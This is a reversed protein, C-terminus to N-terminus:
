FKTSIFQPAGRMIVRAPAGDHGAVKMPLVVVDYDGGPVDKLYLGEVIPIGRGLLIQHVRPAPAAFQEASIYDVGVLKIGADAMAQAADATLYTFDRHFQVSDMWGRHTSRTRFFLRESGKWPHRNLEAADLVSVSDALEIVRAPGVLASLAVQDVPIGDKIFHMPADLHTGSHAGLDYKSLTLPDGKRMDKLFTFVMPADGEYVPTRGAALAATADLWGSAPLRDYKM